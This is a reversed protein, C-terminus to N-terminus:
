DDKQNALIWDICARMTTLKEAEEDSISDVKLKGKFEREILMIIEVLDLSDTHLDEIFRTELTIKEPKIGLHEAVLDRFTEFVGDEQLSM